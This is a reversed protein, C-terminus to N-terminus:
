VHARGIETPVDILSVPRALWFDASMEDISPGSDDFHRPADVHSGLHLPMELVSENCSDGDSLSRIREVKLRPGNAYSPTAPDLVHSLFVWTM